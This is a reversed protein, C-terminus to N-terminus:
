AALDKHVDLSLAVLGAAIQNDSVADSEQYRLACAAFWSTNPLCHRDVYAAEANADVVDGNCCRDSQYQSVFRKYSFAKFPPAAVQAEPAGGTELNVM